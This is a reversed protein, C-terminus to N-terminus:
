SADYRYGQEVVLDFAWATEPTISFGPARFGRVPRGSLDELVRRSRHLDAALSRRDHRRIVEHWWSHSALEHGAGAIRRILAPHREAVWGVTFFTARVGVEAFLALLRETNPVVRAELAPWDDRTHGGELELIHFWDEVDVSLIHTDSGQM